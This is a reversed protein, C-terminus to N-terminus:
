GHPREKEEPKGARGAALHVELLFRYMPMLETFADALVGPLAPSFAEGELDRVTEVGVWKREYWDAVPEDYDGKPRAYRPGIVRYGGLAEIEEALRAFRAPEADVSRRFLEMAAPSAEFYGMGYVYTAAGIEFWFAPGDKGGASDWLTYWLHDKYPGRGFLRRADRYIRSVHGQIAMEPFRAQLLAGTERALAKFPENLVREFQEKHELFWPRENHFSLEWLFEGTEKSFGQFM